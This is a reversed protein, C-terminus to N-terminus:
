NPPQEPLNYDLMGMNHAVTEYLLNYTLTEMESDQWDDENKIKNDVEDHKDEAKYKLDEALNEPTDIVWYDQNSFDWSDIVTYVWSEYEQHRGSGFVPDDEGGIQLGNAHYPNGLDCMYHSALGNQHDGSVYFNDDYDERAYESRAVVKDVAGDGYHDWNNWVSEDPDDAAETIDSIREESIDIAGVTYKLSELSEETLKVHNDPYWLINVDQEIEQMKDKLDTGDFQLKFDTVAVMLDMVLEGQQEESLKKNNYMSTFNKKINKKEQESFTSSRSVAEYILGKDRGDLSEFFSTYDGAGNYEHFIKMRLIVAQREKPKMSKNFVINKTEDGIEVKYLELNESERVDELEKKLKSDSENSAAMAPLITAVVFLAAFVVLWLKRLDEM